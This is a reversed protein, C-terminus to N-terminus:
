NGFLNLDEGITVALDVYDYVDHTSSGSGTPTPTPTPTPVYVMQPQAPKKTLMYVAILLVAGGAVIYLGSNDKM